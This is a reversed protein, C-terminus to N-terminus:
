SLKGVLYKLLDLKQAEIKTEVRAVKFVISFNRVTHYLIITLSMGINFGILFHAGEKKPLISNM